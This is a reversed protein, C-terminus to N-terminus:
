TLGTKTGEDSGAPPNKGQDGNPKEQSEEKQEKDLVNILGSLDPVLANQGPNGPDGKDGQPGTSGPIGQPGIVGQAGTSGPPGPLGAAGKPGTPGPPGPPGPKGPKAPAYSALIRACTSSTAASGILQANHQATVANHMSMGVTEAMVTNVISMTQSFDNGSLLEQLQTM